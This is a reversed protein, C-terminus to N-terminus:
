YILLGVLICIFAVIEVWWTSNSVKFLKILSTLISFVIMPLWHGREVGIGILGFIICCAAGIFHIYPEINDIEKFMTAVGVFLLGSGSLFFLYPATDNTQFFMLFGILACFWTFLSYWVGGLDKLRYWSDSISPLPGDFKICLFSVYLIFIVGQVLTLEM